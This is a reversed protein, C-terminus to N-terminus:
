PFVSKLKVSLYQWLSNKIDPPIINWIKPGLARLTKTGFRVSLM